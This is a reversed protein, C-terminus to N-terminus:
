LRNRNKRIAKITKRGRNIIGASGEQMAVEITTILEEKIDPIVKQIKFLITMSHIKVAIPEAPEALWDFCTNLLIGLKEENEPLPYEQIIRLFERKVGDKKLLPLNIIMKDILPSVLPPNQEWIRKIVWAARWNVPEDNSISLIWLEDLIKPNEVAVRAIESTHRKSIEGLLLEQLTM